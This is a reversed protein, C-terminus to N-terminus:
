KYSEYKIPVVIYITYENTFNTSIKKDNLNSKFDVKPKGEFLISLLRKSKGQDKTPLNTKIGSILNIEYSNQFIENLHNILEINNQNKFNFLFSDVKNKAEQEM